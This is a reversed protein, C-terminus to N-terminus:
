DAEGFKEMREREIKAFLIKLKNPDRESESARQKERAEWAAATREREEPSVKAPPKPIGRRNWDELSPLTLEIVLYPRAIGPCQIFSADVESL